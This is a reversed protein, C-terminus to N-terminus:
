SAVEGPFLPTHASVLPCPAAPEQPTPHSPHHSSISVCIHSVGAGGGPAVGPPPPLVGLTRGCGAKYLCTCKKM